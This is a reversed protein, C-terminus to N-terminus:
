AHTSIDRVGRVALAAVQESSDTLAAVTGKVVSPSPEFPRDELPNTQARVGCCLLTAVVINLLLVSSKM